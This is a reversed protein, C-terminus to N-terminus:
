QRYRYVKLYLRNVFKIISRNKMSVSVMDDSKMNIECPDDCKIILEEDLDTFANCSYSNENKQLPEHLQIADIDFVPNLM